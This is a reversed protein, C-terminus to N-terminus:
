PTRSGRTGEEYLFRNGVILGKSAFIAHQELLVFFGQGTEFVEPKKEKIKVLFETLQSVRNEKNM